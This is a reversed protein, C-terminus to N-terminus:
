RRRWQGTYLLHDLQGRCKIHIDSAKAALIGRRRRCRRSNKLLHRTTPTSVLHHFPGNSSDENPSPNTHISPSIPRPKIQFDRSHAFCFENPNAGLSDWLRCTIAGRIALRIRCCCRFARKEDVVVVVGLKCGMSVALGAM